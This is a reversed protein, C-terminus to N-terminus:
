RSGAPLQERLTNRAAEIDAQVETEPRDQLMAIEFLDYGELVNLVFAQRRAKPLEGLLSHVRDKLEEAELQEAASVSEGSPIADGLTITEDEDLLWVWWEQDGVQPVDESHVDGARQNLSRKM